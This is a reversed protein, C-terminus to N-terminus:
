LVVTMLKVAVAPLAERSAVGDAVVVVAVVVACPWTGSWVSVVAVRWVVVRVLVDM